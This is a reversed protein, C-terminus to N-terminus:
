SLHMSIDIKQFSCEFRTVNKLALLCGLEILPPLKTFSALFTTNAVREVDGNGIRHTPFYGERLGQEGIRPFNEVPVTVVSSRINNDTMPSFAGNSKTQCSLPVLRRRFPLHSLNCSATSM